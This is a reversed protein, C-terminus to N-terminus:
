KRTNKSFTITDQKHDQFQLVNMFFGFNLKASAMRLRYLNMPDVIQADITDQTCAIGGGNVNGDPLFTCCEILENYLPEAKDYDITAIAKIIGEIDDLKDSRLEKGAGVLLFAARNVWREAKTAPMQTIRFTREQGDDILKIIETKRM